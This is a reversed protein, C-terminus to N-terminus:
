LDDMASQRVRNSNVKDYYSLKVRVKNIFTGGVLTLEIDGLETEYIAYWEIERNHVAYKKSENDDGNYKTFEEKNYNPEGYKVNLLTKLNEYNDILTAWLVTEPFLVSIQSVVDFNRLTSVCINCNKYGAFDGSLIAIGDTTGEYHFGKKVMSETYQKLSGDIPVGKFSLHEQAMVGGMIILYAFTIILKKM